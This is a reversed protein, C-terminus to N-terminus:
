TQTYTLQVDIGFVEAYKFLAFLNSIKGAEIDIINERTVFLMKAVDKQSMGSEKRNRKCQTAIERCVIEFHRWNAVDTKTLENSKM